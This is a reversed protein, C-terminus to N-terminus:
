RSTRERRTSADPSVARGDIRRRRVHHVLALLALAALGPWLPSPLPVLVPEEVRPPGSATGISVSVGGLAPNAAM